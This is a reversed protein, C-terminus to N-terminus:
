STPWRGTSATAKENWRKWGRAEGGAGALEVIRYWDWWGHQVVEPEEVGPRDREIYQHPALVQEVFREITKRSPGAMTSPLIVYVPFHV